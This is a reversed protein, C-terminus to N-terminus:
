VGEEVMFDGGCEEQESAQARHYGAFGDRHHPSYAKKSDLYEELSYSHLCEDALL